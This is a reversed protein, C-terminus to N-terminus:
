SKVRAAFMPGLIEQSLREFDQDLPDIDAYVTQYYANESEGFQGNNRFAPVDWIKHAASLADERDKKISTELYAAASKVFFPLPRYLGLRYFGLLKGMEEVANQVPNFRISTTEGVLLSRCEVKPPALACLALHNIWLAFEDRPSLKQLRWRLLGQQSVGTLVAELRVGEAELFVPLPDLLPNALLPLLMPAVSETVAQEKAFIAKGFGGHPLLGDADALRWATQAPQGQRLEDLALERLVERGFYDVGFPERNELGDAGTELRL